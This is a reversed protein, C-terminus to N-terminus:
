LKPPSENVLLLINSSVEAMHMSILKSLTRMSHTSGAYKRVSLYQVHRTTSRRRRSYSFVIHKSNKKCHSYWCYVHTRVYTYSAVNPRVYAVEEVVITYVVVM